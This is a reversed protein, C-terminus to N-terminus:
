HGREERVEPLQVEGNSHIRVESFYWHLDPGPLSLIGEPVEIRLARTGKLPVVAATPEEEYGGGVQLEAGLVRGELDAIVVITAMTAM